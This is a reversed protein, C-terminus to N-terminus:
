PNGLAFEGGFRSREFFGLARERACLGLEGVNGGAEIVGGDRSAALADLQGCRACLGVCQLTLEFTVVFFGLGQPIVEVALGGFDLCRGSLEGLLAGARVIEGVTDGLEIALEHRLGGFRLRQASAELLEGRLEVLLRPQLRIAFIVGFVQAVRRHGRLLDLGFQAGLQGLRLLAM